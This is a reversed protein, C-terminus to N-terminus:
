SDSLDGDCYADLLCQNNNPASEHIEDYDDNHDNEKIRRNQEYIEYKDWKKWDNLLIVLHNWRDSSQELIIDNTDDKENLRMDNIVDFSYQPVLVYYDIVPCYIGQYPEAIFHLDDPNAKITLNSVESLPIELPHNGIKWLWNTFDGKFGEKLIQLGKNTIRPVGDKPLKNLEEAETFWLQRNESPPAKYPGHRDIEYYM